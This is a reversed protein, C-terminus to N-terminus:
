MTENFVNKQLSQQQKTFQLLLRFSILNLNWSSHVSTVDVTTTEQKQKLENFLTSNNNNDNVNCYMESTVTCTTTPEFCHKRIQRLNTKTDWIRIKENTDKGILSFATGTPNTQVARRRRHQGIVARRMKFCYRIDNFIM